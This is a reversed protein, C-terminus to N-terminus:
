ALVRRRSSVFSLPTFYDIILLEMSPEDFAEFLAKRFRLMWWGTPRWEDPM